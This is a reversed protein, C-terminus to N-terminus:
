SNQLQFSGHEDDTELEVQESFISRPSPEFLVSNRAKTTSRPKIQKDKATKPTLTPTSCMFTKRSGPFHKSCVRHGSTPKFDKRGVLHIWQKRLLQKEEEREEKDESSTKPEQDIVKMAEQNLIPERDETSLDLMIWDNAKEGTTLTM